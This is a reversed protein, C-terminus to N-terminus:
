NAAQIDLSALRSALVEFIAARVTPMEDMLSFFERRGLVLLRMPTLATVTASRRIDALLSIEGLVDGPGREALSEGDRTVGVRGSVIVFMERGSDGQRILTTGAALDIDETLQGLRKIDGKGLRSFLPVAHLLDLKPDSPM